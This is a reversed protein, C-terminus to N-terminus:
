GEDEDEDEDSIFDGDIDDVSDFVELPWDSTMLDAVEFGFSHLEACTERNGGGPALAYRYRDRLELIERVRWLSIVAFVVFVAQDLADLSSAKTLRRLFAPRQSSTRYIFERIVENNTKAYRARESAPISDFRERVAKLACGSEHKIWWALGVADNWVYKIYSSM